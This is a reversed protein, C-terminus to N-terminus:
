HLCYYATNKNFLRSSIIYRLTVVTGYTNYLTSHTYQLRLKKLHFLVVAFSSEEFWVLVRHVTTFKINLILSHNRGTAKSANEPSDSGHSSNRTDTLGFKGRITEPHSYRSRFVQFVYMIWTTYFYMWKHRENRRYMPLITSHVINWGRFYNKM